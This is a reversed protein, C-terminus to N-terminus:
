FYGEVVRQATFDVKAAHMWLHSMGALTHVNIELFGYPEKLNSSDYVVGDPSAGLFGFSPNIIVGSSAVVLETKGLSHQYKIYDNLAIKENDM